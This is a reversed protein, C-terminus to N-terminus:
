KCTFTKNLKQLQLMNTNKRELALRALDEARYHLADRAQIDLENINKSITGKQMELRKKPSM